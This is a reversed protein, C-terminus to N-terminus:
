KRPLAALLPAIRPAADPFHKRASEYAHRADDIRGLVRYSRALRLWGELDGPDQALRDALRAVMSEIMAERAAPELATIAAAQDPDPPSPHPRSTAGEGNEMKERSRAMGDRVLPMWPADPGSDRALASFRELAEGYRKQQYAFVALYYRAGPNEPEFALAREFAERAPATVVDGALFVQAEGLALRVGVGDTGAAVARELADVAAAYAGNEMHRRAAAVLRAGDAEMGASVGARAGADPRDRAAILPQDARLGYLHATGFALVFALVAGAGLGRRGRAISSPGPRVFLLVAGAGAAMLQITLLLLAGAAWPVDLIGSVAM